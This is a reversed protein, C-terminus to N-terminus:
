QDLEAEKPLFAKINKDFFDMTTLAIGREPDALFVMTDGSKISFMQRVDKPIVVQGKPGVKTSGIYRGGCMKEAM